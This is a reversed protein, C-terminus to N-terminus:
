GADTARAVVGHALLEEIETDTFGRSSLLAVTDAGAPRAPQPDRAPTDSFRPAVRPQLVGSVETFIGRARMHPHHPAEGLGLVPAVCADTGEFHDAWEDRTRTAFVEAFATRMAPWGAPDEQAHELTLGLGALLEAFFKPELAGVAIHKGDACRYTDYYPLGGDLMNVGREDRWLGAGFMAYLMTIMSAAGDVMAADVVQGRGTLQRAQLAALVGLLLYLAGGGFDALVNAPVVPREPTGVLHLAGTIAAYTIDHGAAGAWPGDQGWGTM